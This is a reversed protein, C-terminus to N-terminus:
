ENDFNDKIIETDCVLKVCKNALLYSALIHDPNRVFEYYIGIHSNRMKEINVFLNNKRFEKKITEVNLVAFKGDSNYDRIINSLHTISEILNENFNSKDYYEIWDTSIYKERKGNLFRPTFCTNTINNDEDLNEPYCYRSLNHTSEFEKLSM